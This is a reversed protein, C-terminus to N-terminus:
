FPEDDAEEVRNTRRWGRAKHGASGPRDFELEGVEILGRGKLRAMVKALEDPKLGKAEPMMAFVKPAYNGANPSHSAPLQQETMKALCAFFLDNQKHHLASFRSADDDPVDNELRFAGRYWRLMVPEELRAYKAKALTLERRDPDDEDVKMHIHSRVQNQFATSGSFSDGAKNPHGILIIACDAEIALSNLLGLFSAVHARINENGEFLHAVNDLIVLKPRLTLLTSRLEHFLPETRLKNTNQDLHAIGKDRRDVLSKVFLKNAFGDLGVNLANAVGILRRHNEDDDDECTLYLAPGRTTSFGFALAGLAVSAALSLSTYSKGGGGQATFFTVQRDPVLKRIVWPQDIVPKGALSGVDILTLPQAESSGATGPAGAGRDGVRSGAGGDGAGRAGSEADGIVRQLIRLVARRPNSQRHVHAAAPVDENMLIGAIVSESFGARYLDGAALLADASGDRGAPLMLSAYLPDSKPLALDAFSLPEVEGIDVEARDAQPAVPPFYHALRQPPYSIGSDPQEIASMVPVRGRRKKAATPWNITGPVRMLHNVAFCHDGGLQEAISRNIAAVADLSIRDAM